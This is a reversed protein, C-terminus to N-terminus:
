TQNYWYWVQAVIALQSIIRIVAQWTFWTNRGVRIVDGPHLTPVITQYQEKDLIKKLNVDIVKKKLSRSKYLNKDNQHDMSRKLDAVGIVGRTIKVSNLNSYETPGGAKSILELLNTNDPVLYEGPKQVEGFIHVTILLRENPGIQYQDRTIIQEQCFITSINLILVVITGVLFRRVSKFDM